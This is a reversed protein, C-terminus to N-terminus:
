NEDDGGGDANEAIEFNKQTVAALFEEASGCSSEAEDLQMLTELARQRDFFKMDVGGDKDRKIASICSLDLDEIDAGDKGFFALKVADNCRNFAIRELGSRVTGYMERRNQLYRNIRRRIPKKDLIDCCDDPQLGCLRAALVPDGSLSLINAFRRRKERMIRRQEKEDLETIDKQMRKRRKTNQLDQGTM